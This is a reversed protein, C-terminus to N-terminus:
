AARSNPATEETEDAEDMGGAPPMQLDALPDKKTPRHRALGLAIQQDRRKVVTRAMESWASIWVYIRRLAEVRRADSTREAAVVDVSVTPASRTKGEAVIRKLAAIADRTMGTRAIVRLAEQDDKKSAHRDDGSVLGEFRDIFSAVELLAAAGKTTEFPDFLFAAQEPHTMTLMARACVLTTAQFRECALLANVMAPAQVPTTRPPRSAAGLESLLTWAEQMREDGWGLPALLTAIASNGGVAQLFRLLRGPARRLTVQQVDKAVSSAIKITKM